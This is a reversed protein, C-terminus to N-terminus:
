ASCVFRPLHVSRHSRYKASRFFPVRYPHRKTKSCGIFPRVLSRDKAQKRTANRTIHTQGFSDKRQCFQRFPTFYSWVCFHQFVRFAKYRLSKACFFLFVLGKPRTKTTRSAPTSGARGQSCRCRFGALRGIGGSACATSTGNRPVPHITGCPKLFTLTFIFLIKLFLFM